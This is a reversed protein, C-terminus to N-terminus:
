FSSNIKFGKKLLTSEELARKSDEIIMEGALEELSSTPKWGLKVLAKSPDGILLDVETPRFYRPDIRVVIENTDARRGIENVGEGECVISPGNKEKSWGLKKASIETHEIAM